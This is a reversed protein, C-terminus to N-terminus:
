RPALTEDDGTLHPVPISSPSTASTGPPSSSTSSIRRSASIDFTLDAHEREEQFPSSTRSSRRHEAPCEPRPATRRSRPSLPRPPAEPTHLAALRSPHRPRHAQPPPVARRNRAPAEPPPRHSRSSYRRTSRICSFDGFRALSTRLPSLFALLLSPAAIAAQSFPIHRLPLLLTTIIM